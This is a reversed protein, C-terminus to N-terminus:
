GPSIIVLDANYVKSTHGGLELEIGCAELKSLTQKSLALNAADSLLVKARKRALLLSASVGSCGAGLVAVQRNELNKPINNLNIM